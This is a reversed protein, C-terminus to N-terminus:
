AVIRGESDARRLEETVRALAELGTTHIRLAEGDQELVRNAQKALTLAGNTRTVIHNLRWSRAPLAALTALERARSRVAHERPHDLTSSAGHPCCREDTCMVKARMSMESLLRRAVRPNVSRGLPELYVGAAGGRGPKEGPKPPKRASINSRVNSQESVGIGTEYGDIGAAVLALGFIGQRWAFVPKGSVQRVHDLAQFLRWVKHYSDKGNGAPSLCVGIAHADVNAATMAFRDLGGRWASNAGFKMLQGCFIPMVPLAVGLSDLYQRTLRLWDLAVIFWPDDPAAVYPYPPIVATAGAALQFNVVREVYEARVSRVAFSPAEVREAHGFTLKAWPDDERTEGQLLHTMPDVLFPIGAGAAAEAFQPRRAAIPADVVLRSVLPRQKGIRIATGGPALLDAVVAHDNLAPRILLEGSM